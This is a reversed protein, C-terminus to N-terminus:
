CISVVKKGHKMSIGVAERVISPSPQLVHSKIFDTVSQEFRGLANHAQARRCYAQVHLFYLNVELRNTYMKM